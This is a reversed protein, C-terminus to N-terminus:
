VVSTIGYFLFSDVFTVFRVFSRSLPVSLDM